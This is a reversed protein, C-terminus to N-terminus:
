LGKRGREMGLVEAQMRRSLAGLQISKKEVLLTMYVAQLLIMTLLM